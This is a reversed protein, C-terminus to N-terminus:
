VRVTHRRHPAGHHFGLRIEGGPRPRRARWRLRTRRNCRHRELAEMVCPSIATTSGFVM